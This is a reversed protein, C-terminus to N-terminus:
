CCIGAITLTVFVGGFGKLTPLFLVKPNLTYTGTYQSNLLDNSLWADVITRTQGNTLTFTSTHSILNGNITTGGFNNTGLWPDRVAGAIDISAINWQSLTKLEGADTQGNQNVDQWIKLQIYGTDLPNLVGDNNTDFSRM